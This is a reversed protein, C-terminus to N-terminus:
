RKGGLFVKWFHTLIKFFGGNKENEQILFKM